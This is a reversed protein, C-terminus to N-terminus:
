SKSQKFVKSEKVFELYIGDRLDFVENDKITINSCNWLHIGNGSSSQDVANSSVKNNSLTGHHSKELLFGFFVNELTNNEFTFNNSQSIYVAAYDKTYSQGPNKVTLGSVTVSDSKVVLVYSKKEGDIIPNNKGIIHLPKDILINSELYTGKQVIIKDHPKSIAIADTLTKVECSACVEISQSYGNLTIFFILILCFTIRLM